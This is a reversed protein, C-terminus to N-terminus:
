QEQFTWSAALLCSLPLFSLRRQHTGTDAVVDEGRCPVSHGTSSPVLSSALCPRVDQVESGGQPWPKFCCMWREVALATKYPNIIDVAGVQFHLTFTPQCPVMLHGMSYRPNRPRRYQERCRDRLAAGRSPASLATSESM